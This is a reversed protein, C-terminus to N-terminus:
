EPEAAYPDRLPAPPHDQAVLEDLMRRLPELQGRLSAQSAEINTRWDMRSWDIPWGADRALQGLFARQTRGNGERTPHLANIEAYYHALREIFRGRALGRLHNERALRRFLNVAEAEVYLPSAFLAGPKAISVTRLEGAWPYVDGFIERHFSLLHELDYNGPLGRVELEQLAALSLDAEVQALREPDTIGLRNRLVGTVPDKYPDHTV